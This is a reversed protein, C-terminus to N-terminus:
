DKSGPIVIMKEPEKSGPPKETSIKARLGPSLKKEDIQTGTIDITARMTAFGEPLSRLPNNRVRLQNVIQVNGFSEPLSEIRNDSLDCVRLLTLNSITGPIVAIQNSSVNFHRLEVLKGIEPPLVIINNQSFQLKRLRTMDFVFSPIETFENHTYFMGILSDMDMLARPLLSLKNTEFYLYVVNKLKGIEDPIVEIQNHNFYLHLNKVSGIPVPVGEDEVTLTSIGTIDTLGKSSLLLAKDGEELTNTQDTTNPMVAGRTAKFLRLPHIAAYEALTTANSAMGASIVVAALAVAGLRIHLNGHVRNM